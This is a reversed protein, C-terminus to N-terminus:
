IPQRSIMAVNHTMSNYASTFKKDFIVVGYKVIKGFYFILLSVNSYTIAQDCQERPQSSASLRYSIPVLFIGVMQKVQFLYLLTEFFEFESKEFYECFRYFNPFVPILSYYSNLMPGSLFMKNAYFQLQKRLGNGGYRPYIPIFLYDITQNQTVM